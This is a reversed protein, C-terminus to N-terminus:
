EDGAHNGDTHEDTLGEAADDRVDRLALQRRPRQAPDDVSGFSDDGPREVIGQTDADDSSRKHHAHNRREDDDSCQGHHDSEEAGDQRSQVDRDLERHEGEGNIEIDGLHSETRRVGLVVQAPEDLEGLRVPNTLLPEEGPEIQDDDNGEDVEDTLEVRGQLIRHDADLVRKNRLILRGVVGREPGRERHERKRNEEHGEIDPNTGLSVHVPALVHGLPHEVLVERDVALIVGDVAVSVDVVRVLSNVFVHVLEGGPGVAEHQGEGVDDGRKGDEGDLEPCDRSDESVGSDGIREDAGDGHEEEGVLHNAVHHVLLTRFGVETVVEDEDADHRLRNREETAFLALLVLDLTTERLDHVVVVPEDTPSTVLGEDGLGVPVHVIEHHQEDHHREVEGSLDFVTNDVTRLHGEGHDQSRKRDEHAVEDGEGLQSRNGFTESVEHVADLLLVGVGVQRIEVDDDLRAALVDHELVDGDMGRVVRTQQDLIEGQDDTRVLRGDEDTRGTRALGRGEADDAPEPRLAGAVDITRVQVIEHEQRLLRVHADARQTVLNEVGVDALHFPPFLQCLGDHLLTAGRNGVLLDVRNQRIETQGVESLTVRLTQVRNLLVDGPAVDERRTLLEAHREGAHDDVLRLDDEQVFRRSREITAVLLLEVGLELTKTDGEGADPVTRRQNVEVVLDDFERAVLSAAVRHQRRRFVDLLLALLGPLLVLVLLGPRSGTLIPRPSWM